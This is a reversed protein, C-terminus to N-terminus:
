RYSALSEPTAMKFRAQKYAGRAFKVDDPVFLYEEEVYAILQVAIDVEMSKFDKKGGMLQFVIKDTNFLAMCNEFNSSLTDTLFKLPNSKYLQNLTYSGDEIKELHLLIPGERLFRYKTGLPANGM